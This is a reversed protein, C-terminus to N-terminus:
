EEQRFYREKREGGPYDKVKLNLKSAEEMPKEFAIPPGRCKQVVYQQYM